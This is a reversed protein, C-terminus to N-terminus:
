APIREHGRYAVFSGTARPASGGALPRSIAKPVVAAPSLIVGTSVPDPHPCIASGCAVCTM